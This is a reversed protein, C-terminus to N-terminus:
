STTKEYKYCQSILTDSSFNTEEWFACRLTRTIETDFKFNPKEQFTCQLTTNILTDFDFLLINGIFWM